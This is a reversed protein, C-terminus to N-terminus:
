TLPSPPGSAECATPPRTLDESFHQQHQQHQQQQQLQQQLKSIFVPGGAFSNAAEESSFLRPTCMFGDARKDTVCGNSSSSSSSAASLQQQLLLSPFRAASSDSRQQAAAAKM